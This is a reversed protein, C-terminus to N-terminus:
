RKAEGKGRSRAKARLFVRAPAAEGGVIRLPACILEYDGPAVESLDLGELLVVGAGLLLHHASHTSSHFADVSLYDIGLLEVGKGVLFSAASEDFYVFREDFSPQRVLGTNRTRLLARRVRNWDLGELDKAEIKEEAEVQFVRAPGVLLDPPISDTTAGGPLFHAPADVHTGTHAGLSLLSNTSPDGAALRRYEDRHYESDGPYIVMGEFLPMSVDYLKM